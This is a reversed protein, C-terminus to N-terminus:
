KPLCNRMCPNRQAEEILNLIHVRACLSLSHVRRDTPPLTRCDGLRLLTVLNMWLWGMSPMNLNGMACCSRNRKSSAFLDKPFCKIKNLCQNIQFVFHLSSLSPCSVCFEREDTSENGLHSSLLWALDLVRSGRRARRCLHFSGWYPTECAAKWPANSPLQSSTCCSPSLCTNVHSVFKVLMPKAWQTVIGMMFLCKLVLCIGLEEDLSRCSNQVWQYSTDGRIMVTIIVFSLKGVEYRKWTLWHTSHKRSLSGKGGNAEGNM